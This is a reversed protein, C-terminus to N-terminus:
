CDVEGSTFLLLKSFSVHFVIVWWCFSLVHLSFPCMQCLPSGTTSSQSKIQYSMVTANHRCCARCLLINFSLAVYSMFHFVMDSYIHAVARHPRVHCFVHRRLPPSCFMNCATCSIIYGPFIHYPTVYFLLVYHPSTVFCKIVHHWIHGSSGYFSLCFDVNYGLVTSCMLYWSM